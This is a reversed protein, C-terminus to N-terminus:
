GDAIVVARDVQFSPPSGDPWDVEGAKAAARSGATVARMWAYAVHRFPDAELDGTRRLIQLLCSTYRGAPLSGGRCRGPIEGQWGGPGGSPDTPGPLNTVVMAPVGMTAAVMAGYNNRFVSQESVGGVANDPTGQVLAMAGATAEPHAEVPVYVSTDHRWERGWLTQSTFRVDLEWVKSSFGFGSVPVEGSNEVSIEVDLGAPDRAAPVDLM